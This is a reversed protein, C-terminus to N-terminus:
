KKGVITDVQELIKTANMRGYALPDISEVPIKNGTKAKINDILYRVQPGVLIVDANETHKVYEQESYAEVSYKGEGLENMRAKLLSTSMGANCVLVVNIM